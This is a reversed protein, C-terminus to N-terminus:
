IKGLEKLDKDPIYLILIGIVIGGIASFLHEGQFFQHDLSDLVYWVGRWILIVGFAVLFNQVLQQLKKKTMLVLTDVERGTQSIAM